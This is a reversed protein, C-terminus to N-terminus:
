GVRISNFNPCAIANWVAIAHAIVNRSRAFVSRLSHNQGIKEQGLYQM